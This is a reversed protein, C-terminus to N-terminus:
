GHRLASTKIDRLKGIATSTHASTEPVAHTIHESQCCKPWYTPSSHWARLNHHRLATLIGDVGHFKKKKGFRTDAAHACPFETM